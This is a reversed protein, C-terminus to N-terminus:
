WEATWTGTRVNGQHNWTVQGSAARATIRGTYRATFGVNQGFDERELVVEDASWRVVRLNASAGDEWRASYRGGDLRWTGCIRVRAEEGSLYAAGAGAIFIANFSRRNPEKFFSSLSIYVLAVLVPVLVDM